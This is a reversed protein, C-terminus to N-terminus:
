IDNFHKNVIGLKQEAISEIHKDTMSLLDQKPIFSVFGHM